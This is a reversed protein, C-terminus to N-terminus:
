MIVVVSALRFQVIGGLMKMAHSLVLPFRFMQRPRFVRPLGPFVGGVAMRLGARGGDSVADKCEPMVVDRSTRM